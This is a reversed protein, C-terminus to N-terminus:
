YGHYSVEIDQTKIPMPVMKMEAMEKISDFIGEASDVFGHWGLKRNKTVSMSRGWPALIAADLLGFIDKVNRQDFPDRSFVLGERKRLRAWSERVEPKRAWGEFTWAFRFRGPPGFGRPPPSVPMTVTTFKADDTEPTEYGIGYAAALMPFFKGWSFMSGDSINLAQNRTQPSLVAWEAHRGILKASSMHNEADWADVDGPFEVSRGLEKQVAAYLALGYPVNMAADRVAGVIFGPRTVNWGVNHIGAWEWLLDEQPYYFNPVALFRPDTEAEPTLPPGLHIGYHKAGTQLVFRQPIIRSMTLATLFNSLLSVNVREMEDVDSWLGQGEKPPPQLYSTFFAFDASVNNEHLTKAIIGPENLFDVSVFTVRDGLPVTPPKRSLAYIRSWRKPANVLTRLIHAGTIGNAGTVIATYTKGDHEPFTPLGHFIGESVVTQAAM